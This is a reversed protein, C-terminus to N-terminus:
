VVGRERLWAMVEERKITGGEFPLKAIFDWKFEQYLGDKEARERGIYMALANLAFDAPGSGGYGWEMGSPSHKVYIHPINFTTGSPTRKCIIDGNFPIFDERQQEKEEEAKIKNYCIPGIGRKISEPDSLPRKCKACTVM